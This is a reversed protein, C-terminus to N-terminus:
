PGIPSKSRVKARCPSRRSMPDQLYRDLIVPKEAQPNFGREIARRLVSDVTEFDLGTQQQIVGYSAGTMQLTIAQARTAVDHRAMITAYLPQKM